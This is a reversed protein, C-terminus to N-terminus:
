FDNVYNSFINMSELFNNVSELFIHERPKLFNNM